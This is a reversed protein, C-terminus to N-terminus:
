TSGKSCVRKLIYNSGMALSTAMMISVKGEQSGVMWFLRFTAMPQFGANSVGGECSPHGIHEGAYVYTGAEVRDRTEMHMYLVTWGTQEYGDNDLDQVVAGDEARVIYGNTVATVWLDSQACGIGEFPPAFDLAAWASGDDWGGHPGGTFAWTVGTEFPLQMAPQILNFPVLSAIDYDFPYGFLLNYTQFLGQPGVDLDWTARDNFLSFFYQVGM